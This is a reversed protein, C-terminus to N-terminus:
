AWSKAARGLEERGDCRNWVQGHSPVRHCLPCGEFPRCLFFAMKDDFRGSKRLERPSASTDRDSMIKRLGFPVLRKTGCEGGERRRRVDQLFEM